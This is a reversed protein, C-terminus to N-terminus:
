PRTSSRSSCWSSTRPSWGPATDSWGATVMTAFGGALGVFFFAFGLRGLAKSPTYIAKAAHVDGSRGVGLLLVLPVLLLGFAAFMALIHVLKWIPM